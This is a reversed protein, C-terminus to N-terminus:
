STLLLAFLGQFRLKMKVAIQAIKARRENDEEQVYQLDLKERDYSVLCSSLVKVLIEVSLNNYESYELLYKCFSLLYTVLVACDGPLKMLFLSCVNEDKDGSGEYEKAISAIIEEPVINPMSELLDVLTDAVAYADFDPPIDKSRELFGRVQAKSEENGALVFLKETKLGNRALWSTLAYIEKPITLKETCKSILENSTLKPDITGFGEHVSNLLELTAGFCSKIFIASINIAFEQNGSTKVSVSAKLYDPNTHLQRAEENTVLVSVAIKATQGSLIVGITPRLSLWNLDQKVVRYELPSEGINSISFESNTEVGYRVSEILVDTTDLKAKPVSEKLLTSFTEKVKNELETKKVPDSKFVKNRFLSAVPKHDSWDLEVSTYFVQTLMAGKYLM